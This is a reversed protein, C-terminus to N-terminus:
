LATVMTGQCAVGLNKSTQAQNIRAKEPYSVIVIHNNVTNVQNGNM